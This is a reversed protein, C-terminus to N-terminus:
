SFKPVSYIVERQIPAYAVGEGFECIFCEYKCQLVLVLDRPVVCTLTDVVVSQM